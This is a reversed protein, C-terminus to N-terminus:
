SCVLSHFEPFKNPNLNPIFIKTLLVGILNKNLNYKYYEYPYLQFIFYNNKAAKNHYLQIYM